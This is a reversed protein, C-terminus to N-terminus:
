CISLSTRFVGSGILCTPHRGANHGKVVAANDSYASLVNEGGVENTHRIMSFLSHPQQEDDIEWSANFIKHRCHESNAQAFMMLEVDRPNRGLESFATVLYTIEDDATCTGAGQERCDAGRRGRWSHRSRRCSQAASREFLPALSDFSGLVTEVMRDHLLSDLAPM